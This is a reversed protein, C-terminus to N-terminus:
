HVVARVGLVAIMILGEGIILGSAANDVAPKADPRRREALWRVLGGIVIALSYAPPILIGLGIMTPLASTLSLLAGAVGGTIAALGVASGYGTSGRAAADVFGLAHAIPIPFTATSAGNAAIILLVLGIGVAAGVAGGSAQTWAVRRRAVIQGQPASSAIKVAYTYYLSAVAACCVVAATLLTVASALGLLAFLLASLYLVPALPAIGVEGGARNLFLVWLALLVAGVAVLAVIRGAPPDAAVTVLVGVAALVAAGLVVPRWRRPIRVAHALSSRVRGLSMLSHGVVLGVGCALVWPYGIHADFTVTTHERHDQVAWIVVTYAAGAALWLAARVGILMGLGVLLPSVAVSLYSPLGAVHPGGDWGLLVAGLAVAAGVASWLVLTATRRAAGNTASEMLSIAPQLTPYPLREREVFFRAVLVGLGVGVLNAAVAVAILVAPSPLDDGRIKVAAIGSDLAATAFYGSSAVSFAIFLQGWSLRRFLRLLAAALLVTLASGGFGAGTRFLVLVNLLCMLLGIALGVVAAGAPGPRSPGASSAPSTASIAERTEGSM